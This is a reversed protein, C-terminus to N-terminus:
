LVCIEVLKVHVSIALIVAGSTTIPFIACGAEWFSSLSSVQGVQVIHCALFVEWFELLSKARFVKPNM